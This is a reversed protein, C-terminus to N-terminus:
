GRQRRRMVLGCGALGALLLAGSAPEPVANAATFTFDDMVVAYLAPGVFEIADVLGAYGSALFAPAATPNLLASTWVLAGDLYLEYQVTADALGAFYAGDFVVDQGFGIHSAAKGAAADDYWNMTARGTGSHPTYPPADGTYTYYSWGGASWDLGGYGAPVSGDSGLNDFNLVTAASAAVPALLALAGAAIWTKLKSMM